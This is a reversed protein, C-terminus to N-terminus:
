SEHNQFKEEPIIGSFLHDLDRLTYYMERVEPALTELKAITEASFGKQNILAYSELQDALDYLANYFYPIKTPLSM